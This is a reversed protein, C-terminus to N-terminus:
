RESVLCCWVLLGVPFSLHSPLIVLLGQRESVLFVLGIFWCPLESPFTFYGIVGTMRLCSVGSWYVLLSARIPLYLLWYGRDNQSLVVGSWYVLLSARIPLYFLWYGRDNQSLFCWVLLGAPFSQHSPLIVLLGQRESVRFVLGIFWCPLESPFTFYGIVGTMRLCSVDSWYVLLSARIPLYFLWYGRDNQSM